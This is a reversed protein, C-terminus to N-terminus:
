ISESVAGCLRPPPSRQRGLGDRPCWAAPDPRRWSFRADDATRRRRPRARDVTLARRRRVPARSEAPGSVIGAFEAYLWEEDECVLAWFQEDVAGASLATGTDVRDVM